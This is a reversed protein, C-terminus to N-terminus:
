EKFPKYEQGVWGLGVHGSFEMINLRVGHVIISLSGLIINLSHGLFIIFAALVGQMINNVGSGIAMNNFSSAIAGSAYGVAFLRLYSVIDAFFGIAKLPFDLLNAIITKFINKQLNYFILSLTAGVILLPTALTSLPKALVFNAAFFYMGWLIALWGIEGLVSLSRIKSVITIGHAISLHIVGIILCLQMVTVQSTEAFSYISSIILSNFIPLRAIQEFGFWTGTIAGWIVTAISSIYLLMFPERPATKFKKRALTTLGLFLLGYGADGILIAFFLCFFLLFWFSIDIENYGPLINMFKLIPNITKIWAPNELLTPTEEINQPQCAAIGWGEKNALQEIEKLKHTPCYGGLYSINEQGAMFLCTKNFELKKTLDQHYYNLQNKHESLKQLKEEIVKLMNQNEQYKKFITQYDKVQVIVQKCDLSGQPDFSLFALCYVGQKQKVVYVTKNEPITKFYNKDCTYLKLYVGAKELEHIDSSCVDGWAEFWELKTKLEEEQSIIDQRHKILNLVEKVINHCHEEECKCQLLSDEKPLYNLAKEVDAIRHMALILGENHHEHLHKVHVIGLKRLQNVGQRVADSAMFVTIESMPVIM